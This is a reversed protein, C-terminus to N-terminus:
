IVCMVCMWLFNRCAYSYKQSSSYTFSWWIRCYSRLRLYRQSPFDTSNRFILRLWVHHTCRARVYDVIRYRPDPIFFFFPLADVRFCSTGASCHSASRLIIRMADSYYSKWLCSFQEPPLSFTSCPWPFFGNSLSGKATAATMTTVMTTNMTALFSCSRQQPPNQAKGRSEARTHSRLLGPLLTGTNGTRPWQLKNLTLPVDHNARAYVSGTHWSTDM